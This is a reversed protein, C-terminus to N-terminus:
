LVTDVVYTNLFFYIRAVKKYKKQLKLNNIYFNKKIFNAGSDTAMPHAALESQGVVSAHM